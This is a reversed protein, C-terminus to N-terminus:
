DQAFLTAAVHHTDAYETVSTIKGDRVTFVGACKNDYVAGNAATAKSIWEALVQEGDAFSVSGPLGRMAQFSSTARAVSTSARTM